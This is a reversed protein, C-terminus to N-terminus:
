RDSDERVTLVLKGTTRRALLDEHAQRAEDLPYRGGSVPTLRGASVLSLLEDMAPQLGGLRRAAHVLWFGIVSTSRAMLAAPGVPTPPTRSAMGYVVLRGWPALAALSGDFVPGGTMELVVDIGSGDAAEGLIDRVEDATAAGSVDVAVDAGLSLALDRKPASSATAVIRGAGWQRALQVALSGVGGAASHVVVTEGTALHACSRLLHWATTGQLVLALAVDDPVDDPIPFVTSVHALAQEAYGGGGLTLAVVRRGDLDGGNVRGVVEGGPILPLQQRSLYSDEIQHTDAYNVGASRVDILVQGDAPEPAPVEAPRLVEPGGFRTIQVARV